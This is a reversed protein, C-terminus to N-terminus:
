PIIKALSDHLGNRVIYSKPYVASVTRIERRWTGIGIMSMLCAISLLSKVHLALTLLERFEIMNPLLLPGHYHLLM